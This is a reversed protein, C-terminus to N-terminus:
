EGPRRRSFHVPVLIKEGNERERHEKFLYSVTASIEREAQTKELPSVNKRVKERSSTGEYSLTSPPSEVMFISVVTEQLDPAFM